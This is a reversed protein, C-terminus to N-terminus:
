VDVGAADGVAADGLAEVAPDATSVGALAAPWDTAAVGPEVPSGLKAWM